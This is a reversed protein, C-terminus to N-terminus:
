LKHAQKKIARQPLEKALHYGGVLGALLLFSAIEVALLYPGFLLSGVARADVLQVDSTSWAQHSQLVWIVEALLVMVLASPGVWNQWKLWQSERDIDSQNINFIMVAFVFLVMIAGAYVIIQLAAAFPAGLLYFCMALALLSVVLYLLAHVANKNTVVFLSAVIAISGSVYFLLEANM